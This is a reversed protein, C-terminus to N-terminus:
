ITDEKIVPSYRKSFNNEAEIYTFESNLNYLSNSKIYCFLISVQITLHIM